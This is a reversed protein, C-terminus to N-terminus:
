HTNHAWLSNWWGPCGTIFCKKKKRAVMEKMLLLWFHSMVLLLGGMKGEFDELIARTTGGFGLVEQSYSSSNVQKSAVNLIMEFKM